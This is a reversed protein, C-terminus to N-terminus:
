QNGGKLVKENIIFIALGIIALSGIVIGLYMAPSGTKISVILDAKSIDDEGAKKNKATSDIDTVGSLNSSEGIEAENTITGVSNSSLTKKLVLTVTQTKGPEIKGPNVKMYHLNNDNGIYWDPNLESSFTLDKPLYDILDSVYGDIEGENTVTLNYEIILTSGNINKAGIEIKAFNAGDQFDYSTTGNNNTVVATKVYKNLKLDFKGKQVLGLDINKISNGNVKLKDTLALKQEEADIMVTKEIADSNTDEKAEVAQYKTINYKNTDYVFAVLYEGNKLGSFKYTGNITTKTEIAKGNADKAIEGQSDLLMVNVDKLIQEDNDRVGNSNKDLWALGSIYYGNEQENNQNDPNQPNEPNVVEPTEQFLTDGKIVTNTVINSELYENNEVPIKAVNSISISEKGDLDFIVGEVEIRLIDGPELVESCNIKNGLLLADNVLEDNIYLRIDKITIQSPIEDLVNVVKEVLGVNKVTIIYTLTDGVKVTEEHRSEVNINFRVMELNSTYVNSEYTEDGLMAYVTNDIVAKLVEQPYNEIKVEYTLVKREGAKLESIDYYLCNDNLNYSWDKNVESNSDYKTHEPIVGKVRISNLTKQTNNQVMVIYKISTSEDLVVEMNDRRSLIVSLDGNGVEIDKSKLIAEEENNENLLKIINVIKSADKVRISVEKSITQGPELGNVDWEEIQKQEEDEFRIDEGQAYTLNTFITGEPVVYQLKANNITTDGMNKASVIFTVIQGQHVKSMNTKQTISLEANIKNASKLVEPEQVAVAQKSVKYSIVRALDQNNFNFNIDLTALNEETTIEDPLAVSYSLDLKSGQKVDGDIEVKFENVKSYDEVYEVYNNTEDLYFVKAGEFVNIPGTLDTKTKGILTVNKLDGGFNNILSTSLVAAKDESGANLYIEENNITEVKNDGITIANKTVFGKRSVIKMDFSKNLVDEGNTITSLVKTDKDAMFKDTNLRLDIVFNAGRLASNPNYKTQTGITKIVIVKGNEGDQVEAKEVQLEEDILTINEISANKVESPLEITIIPNSYLKESSEFANLLTTIRLNDEVQSSIADKSFTMEAKTEPNRLEVSKLIDVRYTEENNHKLTFLTTMVNDDENYEENMVIEKNAIVELCGENVPKSTKIVVKNLGNLEVEIYEELEDSLNIEKIADKLNAENYIKITGENGLLNLAEKSNIKLGTFYNKVNANAIEGADDTLELEGVADKYSVYVKQKTEYNTTKGAYMYGKYIVEPVNHVVEIVSGTISEIDATYNDEKRITEQKGYINLDMKVHSVFPTSDVDELYIYTVIYEDCVNKTWSVNNNEDPNNSVNIEIKRTEENYTYNDNNFDLYTKGNVAKTSKAFVKVREVNEPVDIEIKQNEVPAQNENINTKIDLAVIRKAEGDINYVKNTIVEQKLNIQESTIEDFTWNVKVEKETDLDFVNGYNDIYEGTLKVKSSMSLLELNYSDDRKAVVPIEFYSVSGTEITGIYLSEEGEESKFNSNSFDLRANELKGENQVELVISLKQDKSNIDKTIEKENSNLYAEFKVNAINTKTNKSEIAYSGVVAFNAFMIILTLMFAIIKINTRGMNFKIFKNFM